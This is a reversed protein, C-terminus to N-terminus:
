PHMTILIRPINGRGAYYSNVRRKVGEAESRRKADDKLWQCIPCDNVVPRCGSCLLHSELCQYAAGGEESPNLCVPCTQLVEDSTFLAEIEQSNNDLKEQFVTLATEEMEAFDNIVKQREVYAVEKRGRENESEEEEGELYEILQQLKRKEAQARSMQEELEAISAEVVQLNQLKSNKDSIIKRVKDLHIEMERAHKNNLDDMVTKIEGIKMQHKSIGEEIEVQENQLQEYKAKRVAIEKERTEREYCSEVARMLAPRSCTQDSM